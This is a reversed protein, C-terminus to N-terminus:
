SIPIYEPTVAATGNMYFADVLTAETASAGAQRRLLGAARKGLLTTIAQTGPSSTIEAHPFELLLGSGIVSSMINAQELSAIQFLRVESLFVGTNPDYSLVNYCPVMGAPNTISTVNIADICLQNTENAWNTMSVSITPQLTSSPTAQRRVIRSPPDLTISGGTAPLVPRNHSGDLFYLANSSVTFISLTFLLVVVQTLM